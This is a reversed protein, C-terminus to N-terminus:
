AAALILTGCPKWFTARLIVPKWGLVQFMARCLRNSQMTAKGRARWAWSWLFRQQVVPATCARSQDKWKACWSTIHRCFVMGEKLIRCGLFNGNNIRLFCNIEGLKFKGCRLGNLDFCCPQCLSLAVAEM